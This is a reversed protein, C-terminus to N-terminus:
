FPIEDEVEDLAKVAKENDGNSTTLFKIDRAHLELNAVWENDSKRQFPKGVKVRGQVQILDGKKVMRGVNEASKGWVLVTFWDTEQVQEGDAKKYFYNVPISFKALTRSTGNNEFYRLEPDSSLKGAIITYASM